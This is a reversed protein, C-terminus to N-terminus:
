RKRNAPPQHCSRQAESEEDIFHPYSFRSQPRTSLIFCYEIVSCRRDWALHEMFIVGRSKSNACISLSQHPEITSGLSKEGGLDM